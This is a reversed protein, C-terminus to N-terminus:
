LANTLFEWRNHGILLCLARFCSMETDSFRPCRGANEIRGALRSCVCTEVNIVEFEQGGDHRVWSYFLERVVLGGLVGSGIIGGARRIGLRFGSPLSLGVDGSTRGDCHVAAVLLLCSLCNSLQAQLVHRANCSHSQSSWFSDTCDANPRLIGASAGAQTPHSTSVRRGCIRKTM